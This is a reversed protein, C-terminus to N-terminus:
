MKFISSIFEDYITKIVAHGSNNYHNNDSEILDCLNHGRALIEKVPNIIPISEKKCIDELINMLEYRSGHNRTVLHTVIIIPKNYLENKIELIDNYIEDYTQDRVIVSNKVSDSIGFKHSETYISHHSFHNNYEYTKKGSIEIVFVDTNELERKFRDDYVLQHRHVLPNRLVHVTEEPLLHGTKCYRIAELMEKTYHCFAIKDKICTVDYSSYLSDQRCCGFITIKM